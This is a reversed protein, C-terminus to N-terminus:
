YILKRPYGDIPVLIHGFFHHLMKGDALMSFYGGGAQEVDTMPGRFRKSFIHCSEIFLFYLDRMWILIHKYSGGM